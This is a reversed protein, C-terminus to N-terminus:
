VGIEITMRSPVGNLIERIKATAFIDAVKDQNEPSLALVERGLEEAGKIKMTHEKDVGLQIITKNGNFGLKKIKFSDWMEGTLWMDVFQNQTNHGLKAKRVLPSYPKIIKPENKKTATATKKPSASKMKKAKKIKVKSIDQNRVKGKGKRRAYEASKYPHRIGNLMQRETADKKILEIARQGIFALSSVVKLNSDLNSELKNIINTFYQINM